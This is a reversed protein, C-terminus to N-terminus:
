RMRIPKSHLVRGNEADLLVRLPNVGGKVISDWVLRYSGEKELLGLRQVKVVGGNGLALQEELLAPVRARLISPSLNKLAVDRDYGNRVFLIKGNLDFHVDVTANLVPIGFYQQTFTVKTMDGSSVSKSYVLSSRSSDIDWIGKYSGLFIRAREEKPHGQAQFDLGRRGFFAKRVVGDKGIHLKTVASAGLTEKIRSAREEGGLAWCCESLLLLFFLCVHIRKLLVQLTKISPTRNIIRM